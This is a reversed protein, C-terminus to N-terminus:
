LELIGAPTPKDAIASLILQPVVATEGLPSSSPKQYLQPNQYSWNMFLSWTYIHPKSKRGMQSVQAM